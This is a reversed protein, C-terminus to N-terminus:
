TEISVPRGGTELSRQAAELVKVVRLGSEGDSLPATGNRICDIFHECEIRLPEKEELSPILIDGFRLTLHEGYPAAQAAEEVGRDFIRIKGSPEMDDFVAMKKGAVITLRRVKHPDLWSVHVHAMVKDAFRMSVFVVDQIGERVYSEGSAAVEILPKDGLLHLIVSVDHPALSWLVTEDRRLRGLNLRQSYLYQVDGLTGEDLRAKLYAVAPHYILLHGAMLVKGQRRAVDVLERGTEASLTLPKEVLVHKGGLLADRALEFHTEASSAIVVADIGDDRLLEDYDSCTEIGPYTARAEALRENRLDCCVALRCGEIRRLNRAFNPGWQGYGILGVNVPNLTRVPNVPKGSNTSGTM